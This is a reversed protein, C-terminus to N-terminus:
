TMPLWWPQGRRGFFRGFMSQGDPDGIAKASYPLLRRLSVRVLVTRSVLNRIGSNGTMLGRGVMWIWEAVAALRM